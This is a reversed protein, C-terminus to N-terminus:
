KDLILYLATTLKMINKNSDMIRDSIMSTINKLIIYGDSKNKECISFFDNKNLIGIICQDISKITATRINHRGFLGIEGFVPKSNSSAQLIEKESNNNKQNTSLTIKRTISVNGEFLIILSNGKQGEKLIIENNPISKVDIKNLIADATKDSINNFIKYSKVKNINKYVELM